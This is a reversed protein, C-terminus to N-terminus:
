RVCAREVCDSLLSSKALIGVWPPPEERLLRVRWM